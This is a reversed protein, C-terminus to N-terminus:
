EREAQLDVPAVDIVNLMHPRRGPLRQVVLRAIEWPGSTRQVLRWALQLEDEIQLWLKGHTLKPVAEIRFPCALLEPHLYRHFEARFPSKLASMNQVIAREHEASLLVMQSCKYPCGHPALVLCLDELVKAVAELHGPGM